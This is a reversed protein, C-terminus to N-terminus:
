RLGEAIYESRRFDLTTLILARQLLGEYTTVPQSFANANFASSLFHGQLKIRDQYYDVIKDRTLMHTKYDFSSIRRQIYMNLDFLASNYDGLMAYAEARSLLVEEMRFICHRAYYSGIGAVVNVYKFDHTLKPTFGVNDGSVGFTDYNWTGGTVNSNYVQTAVSPKLSYRSYARGTFALSATTQPETVLLTFEAEPDSYARARTASSSITTISQRDLLKETLSVYTLDQPDVIVQVSGDRNLVPNNANDTVTELLTPTGILKNAYTIVGAYDETFLNYRVAFANASEINFRFKPQKYAAKGPAGKYGREFDTWIKELIKAVTERDYDKHIVEEPETVYPVGPNHNERGREFMNSYMTLLSFHTYARVLYAESRYIEGDAPWGMKKLSAIAHNAVAIAKYCATWYNDHSDARMSNLNRESYNFADIMYSLVDGVSYVSSGYDRYGDCRPELIGIYTTEPYATAMLKEVKDVTNIETRNDPMQDLFKNCSTTAIILIASTIALKIIKKM